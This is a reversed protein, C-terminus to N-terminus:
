APSLLKWDLEELGRASVIVGAAVVVLTFALADLTSDPALRVRVAVTLACLLPMAGDPVTCNILPDVGILPVTVYAPLAPDPEVPAKADRCAVRAM